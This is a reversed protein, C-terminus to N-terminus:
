KPTTTPNREPKPLFAQISFKLQNAEQYHNKSAISDQENLGCKWHNHAVNPSVILSSM